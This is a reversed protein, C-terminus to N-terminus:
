ERAPANWFLNLPIREAPPTEEVLVTGGENLSELSVSSQEDDSLLVIPLEAVSGTVDPAASPIPADDDRFLIPETIHMVEGIPAALRRTMAGLGINQWWNSPKQNSTILIWRPRFNVMGGKTNVMLPYRDCMRQMLDRGIWGYFEDIVVIEQGDYGDFFMSGANPRAVWYSRWGPNEECMNTAWTLASRTKGTGSPGWWVRVRTQWTRQQTSSLSQYHYFAKYYRCFSGFHADAISLMPDGNQLSTRIEDLDTRAGQRNVPEEGFTFPGAVRTDEKNAYAKAQEHTGMRREWHCVNGLPLQRRIEQMRYRRSMIAYGQYHLTGQGEGRELQYTCWTVVGTNVWRALEASTNRYQDPNNLTFVWANSQPMRRARVTPAPVNVRIPRSAAMIFRKKKLSYYQIGERPGAM